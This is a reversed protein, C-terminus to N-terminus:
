AHSYMPYILKFAIVIILLLEIVLVFKGPTSHAYYISAALLLVPGFLFLMLDRVTPVGYSPTLPAILGVGFLILAAAGAFFLLVGQYSRNM